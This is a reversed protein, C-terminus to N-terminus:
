EEVSMSLVMLKHPLEIIESFQVGFAIAPTGKFPSVSSWAIKGSFPLEENNAQQTIVGSIDLGTEILEEEPTSSEILICAGGESINGLFGNLARGQINCSVVYDNFDKPSIRVSNRKFDM